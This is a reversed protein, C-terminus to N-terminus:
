KLHKQGSHHSRMADDIESHNWDIVSLNNRNNVTDPRIAIIKDNQDLWVTLGTAWLKKGRGIRVLVIPTPTHYVEAWKIKPFNVSPRTSASYEMKVLKEATGIIINVAKYLPVPSLYSEIVYRRNITDISRLLALTKEAGRLTLNDAVVRDYPLELIQYHQM